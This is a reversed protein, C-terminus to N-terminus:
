NQPKEGTNKAPVTPPVDTGYEIPSSPKDVPPEALPSTPAAPSATPTAPIALTTATTPAAVTAPKIAEGTENTQDVGVTEKQEEPVEIGQLEEAMGSEEPAKSGETEERSRETEEKVQAPEEKPAETAM